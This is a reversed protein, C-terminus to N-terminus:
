PCESVGGILVHAGRFFQGILLMYLGLLFGDISLILFIATLLYTVLSIRGSRVYVV